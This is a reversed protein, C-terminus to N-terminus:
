VEYFIIGGYKAIDPNEKMFKKNEEEANEIQENVSPNKKEETVNKKEKQVDKSYQEYTRRKKSWHEKILESMQIIWTRDVDCLYIADDSFPIQDQDIIGYALQMAQWVGVMEYYFPMKLIPKIGRMTEMLENIMNYVECGRNICAIQSKIGGADDTWRIINDVKDLTEQKMKQTLIYEEDLSIDTDGPFCIKVGKLDTLGEPLKYRYTEKGKDYYSFMAKELLYKKEEESIEGLYAKDIGFFNALQELRQEPIDKKGNEWSSLAQRTVGIYDALENLSLNCRTRIYRLGNM